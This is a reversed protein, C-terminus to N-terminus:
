DWAGGGWALTPLYDSKVNHTHVYEGPQIASTASGIPAGYKTVKEGAAIPAIAVKHGTPITQAMRVPRGDIVVTEGAQITTTAAAVNDEPALRLLRPDTAHLAADAM